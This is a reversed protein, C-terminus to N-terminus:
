VCRKAYFRIQICLKYLKVDIKPSYKPFFNSIYVYLQPYERLLHNHGDSAYSTAIYEEEKTIYRFADNLIKWISM